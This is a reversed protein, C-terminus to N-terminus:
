PDGTYDLIPIGEYERYTCRGARLEDRESKSLKNMGRSVVYVIQGPKWPLVGDSRYYEEDLVLERKM